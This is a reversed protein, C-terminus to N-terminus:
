IENLHEDTHAGAANAIKELLALLVSRADNEYIFDVRNATMTACAETTTM